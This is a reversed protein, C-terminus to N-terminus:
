KKEYKEIIDELIDTQEDIKDETMNDWLYINGVFVGNNVVSVRIGHESEKMDVAVVLPSNTKVLVNNSSYLANSFNHNTVLIWFVHLDLEHKTM